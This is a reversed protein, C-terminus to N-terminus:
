ISFVVPSSYRVDNLESYVFWLMCKTLLEYLTTVYCQNCWSKNKKFHICTCNIKNYCMFEPICASSKSFFVYRRYMSCCYFSLFHICSNLIVWNCITANLLCFEHLSLNKKRYTLFICSPFMNKCLTACLIKWSM